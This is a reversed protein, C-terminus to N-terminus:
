KQGYTSFDLYEAPDIAEGDKRIEFHLHPGTSLGTSGVLGIITGIRVKEEEPVLIKFLHSYHTTFENAHQIVIKNGHGKSSDASLIIGQGAAYIKTGQLAAIDMGKHFFSEKTFPNIGRAYKQTLNGEQLPLEFIVRSEIATSMDIAGGPTNFLSFLILLAPLIFLTKIISFLSSKKRNLMFIRRKTQSFVFTNAFSLGPLGVSQKLILFQYSKKDYGSQLVGRDAIYEHTDRLSKKMVLIIPNFWHLIQICEFLLLDFTHGSKIHVKEHTLIQDFDQASYNNKNIFVYHFFSYPSIEQFPNLIRLGNLSESKSQRIIKLMQILRVLTLAFFYGAGALYIVIILNTLSFGPRQEPNLNGTGIVLRDSISLDDSIIKDLTMYQISDELLFEPITIEIAPLTISLLAALILYARNFTYFTERRFLLWYVLYLLSLSLTSKAIYLTINDM